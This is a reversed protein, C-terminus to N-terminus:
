LTLENNKLEFILLALCTVINVIGIDYSEILQEFSRKKIMVLLKQSILFNVFDNTSHFLALDISCM